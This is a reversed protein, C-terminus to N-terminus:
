FLSSRTSGFGRGTMAAAFLTLFRDSMEVLNARADIVFKDGSSLVIEFPEFPDQDTLEIISELMGKKKEDSM